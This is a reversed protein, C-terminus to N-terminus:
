STEIQWAALQELGAELSVPEVPLPANAELDVGERAARLVALMRAAIRAQDDPRYRDVNMPLQSYDISELGYAMEEFTKQYAAGFGFHLVDDGNLPINVAPIPQDVDFEDREVPGTQMDPRPDLVVIRYPHSTAQGQTYDGLRTFTPPTEHLYDIEVFVLGKELLLRRKIQYTQADQDYGKNTPSLLEIWAIPFLHHTDEQDHVALARYPKEIDEETIVMDAVTLAAASASRREPPHPPHHGGILIDARRKQPDDGIRRIQLSEEMIATYGIPLLKQRLLGALDGIHRNHFNNWGGEAQWYSHLHANIGPYQNKISRVPPM